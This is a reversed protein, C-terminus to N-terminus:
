HGCTNAVSKTTIGCVGSSGGAAPGIREAGSGDTGWSGETGAGDNALVLFWLLRGPQPAPNPVNRWRYPSVAGCASGEVGFTGGSHSPLDDKFGYVIHYGEAGGCTTTDWTVRLSSGQADLKAVRVGSGESGDPVAPPGVSEITFTGTAKPGGRYAADVARVEWTYAGSDLGRLSWDTVASVSGPQPLRQATAVPTGSKYVSLDYTLAITPTDDDTAALWSLEVSDGSPVAALGSASTPAANVAPAGNRYLHIQAEVLGNGGPVYYAGAVLYDLDGDNDLDFWTFAGGRGVSTVPAPLSLGLPTFTGGTNQYV